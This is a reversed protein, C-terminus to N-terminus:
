FDFEVNKRNSSLFNTKGIATEKIVNTPRRIIVEYECSFLGEESKNIKYSSIENKTRANKLSIEMTSEFLRRDKIRAIFLTTGFFGIVVVCFILKLM